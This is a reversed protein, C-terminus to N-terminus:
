DTAPDSRAGTISEAAALFASIDPLAIPKRIPSLVPRLSSAM